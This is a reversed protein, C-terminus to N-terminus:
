YFPARASILSLWLPVLSSEAGLILRQCWYQVIVCADNGGIPNVPFAQPMQADHSIWGFSMKFEFWIFDWKNMINM